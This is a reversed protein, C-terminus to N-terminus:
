DALLHMHLHFIEQGGKAGVNIHLKYGELQLEEGVKRAVGFLHGILAHDASCAIDGFFSCSFHHGDAIRRCRYRKRNKEQKDHSAVWVIQIPRCDKRPAPKGRASGHGLTM